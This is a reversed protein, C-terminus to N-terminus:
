RSSRAVQGRPSRVGEIHQDVGAAQGLAGIVPDTATVEALAPLWSSGPPSRPPRPGPRCRCWPPPWGRSRRALVLDESDLALAVQGQGQGFGSCSVTPRCASAPPRGEGAGSALGGGTAAVRSGSAGEASGARHGGVPVRLHSPLMTWATPLKEAYM